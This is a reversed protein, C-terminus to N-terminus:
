NKSTINKKFFELIEKNLLRTQFELEIMKFSIVYDCGDKWRSCGYARKGKVLHGKQCQPCLFRDTESSHYRMEQVVERLLLKLEDIFAQMQYAGKAIMNLKLEWQGTLEPSKLLANSIRGILDIGIHTPHISKGKREIYQRRFLTEIINARTSPRGIGNAKLQERLNEDEVQRGATEMARLLTAETYPKPPHTRKSELLPEHTGEEGKTFAPMATEDKADNPVSEKQYLLKWGAKLIEKGTAKFPYVDVEAEVRTNSLECVPMFNAVFRRAVMDFIEAEDPSLNQAKVGTPIIAHHDTIKKNDFVRKTKAIKKKLIAEVFPQFAALSKLVGAVKPYMDEPLYTTDVRPYTLLKKEYLSQVLQLTKDASFGIKKNAEVQLATLDFLRPAYEKAKKKEVKTIRLPYKALEAMLTEAKSKQLFRGEEYSFLQERYMTKLEWYDQEEFHLIEYYRKVIMSLTPTQVRGISLIQGGKGYKLTYLRSANIGLLWDSYARASGAQFLPLYEENDHLKSFGEKIAEETLSSIWLRKIPKTNQAKHYVWQQILEGEQGADGCNIIAECDEREILSKIINFQKISGQNNILKIGFKQPIIPLDCLRWMKLHSLYDKPDKLTCLHGFTWSVCYGNGELYGDRRTKAGIVAAIERAVSPKEAVCLQM